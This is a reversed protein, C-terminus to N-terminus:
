KLRLALGATVRYVELAQGALFCGAQGVADRLQREGADVPTVGGGIENLIFVSDPYENLDKKTEELIDMGCELRKAITEDYAEMIKRGAFHERAFATKGQYKGGTVLIM